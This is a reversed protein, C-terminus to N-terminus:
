PRDAQASPWPLRYPQGIEEMYRLGLYGLVALNLMGNASARGVYGANKSPRDLFDRWKREVRWTRDLAELWKQFVPEPGATRLYETFLWYVYPGVWFETPPGFKRGHIWCDDTVYRWARHCAHLAARASAERGAAKAALYVGFLGEGVYINGLYTHCGGEVEDGCQWDFWGNPKMKWECWRVTNDMIRWWREPPKEDLVQMAYAYYSLGALARGLYVDCQRGEQYYTKQEVSGDPKQILRLHRLVDPIGNSTQTAHATLFDAARRVATSLREAEARKEPIGAYYLMPYTLARMWEGIQNSDFTYGAKYWDPDYGSMALENTTTRAAGNPAQMHEIMHRISDDLLAETFRRRAADGSRRFAEAAFTLGTDGAENGETHKWTHTAFLRIFEPYTQPNLPDYVHPLSARAWGIIGGYLLDRLWLAMGTRISLVTFTMSEGPRRVYFDCSGVRGGLLSRGSRLVDATVLYYGPPLGAVDLSRELRLVKGPPVDDALPQDRQATWGTFNERYRFRLVDSARLATAPGAAILLTAPLEKAGADVLAIRESEDGKPGLWLAAAAENPGLRSPTRRVDCLQFGGVRFTMQDGDRYDSECLFFHIRTVRDIEPINRIRHFVRVWKGPRFPPILTNIRGQKGTWLIFRIRIQRDLSADCRIWYTIAEYGSFDLPPNPQVEFSPWGVPYPGANHYDITVDFRFAKGGDPGGGPEITLRGEPGGSNRWPLDFLFALSKSHDPDPVQVWKQWPLLRPAPDAGSAAVLSFVVAAAAVVHMVSRRVLM